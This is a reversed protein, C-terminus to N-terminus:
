YVRIAEVDLPQEPFSLRVAKALRIPFDLSAALEGGPGARHLPAFADGDPSM